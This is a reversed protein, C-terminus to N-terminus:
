SRRRARRMRCAPGFDCFSPCDRDPLPAIMGSKMGDAAGRAVQLTSRFLEAEQDADLKRCGDVAEGLLDHFEDVVVGSRKCQALSLYCGGIIRAEPRSAALASLYLPLQVAESTGIASAKAISNSKYDTVFWTEGPGVDVRDIRGKIKLGGIDVGDRDGVNMETYRTVMRGGEGSEKALFVAIQKKISWAAIRKEAATGPCQHGDILRDITEAAIANAEAVLDPKLPLRGRRGMERYVTKLAEHMLVGQTRADFSAEAEKVNVCSRLFWTFPCSLYSELQSPSFYRRSALDALVKPDTLPKPSGVWPRGPSRQQGSTQGLSSCARLYHRETPATEAVFVQDALTRRRHLAGEPALLERAHTFFHSQTAEAGGDEADRSSLYLIQWARSVANVFLGAEADAEVPFVVGSGLANIRAKQAETLLLATDTRAPFEGEVLGLIFVVDFRRARVRHLSLIQVRDQGEAPGGPVAIDGLVPLLASADLGGNDGGASMQSATALASLLAKLARVDAETDAHASSVDGLGSRLMELALQRVALVDLGAGQLGPGGLSPQVAQRLLGLCNASQPDLLGALVQAGRAFGQRYEAEAQSVVAADVGSYPSRLYALLADADDEAWGRIGSLLAHGFGSELLRRGGDIRYPINCSDFVQCLLRRWGQVHRVVVAIRGPPFGARMLEAIEQAAMEAENRQGSALMFRVGPASVGDGESFPREPVCASAMFNRELFAVAQSSYAQQQTPLEVVEKAVTQWREVEPAGVLSVARSREHALTLVVPVRHAMAEILKIQGPTFSTFGYLAVPRGWSEVLALAARVGAPRDVLGLIERLSRYRAAITAVDVALGTAAHDAAGWDHLLCDIEADGYGSEGLRTLLAGMAHLTGPFQLMPGLAAFESEDLIRRLLLDRQFDSVYRPQRGLLAAVLGDFTMASSPGVLSGCRRLMELTLEQADPTTPAVVVPDLHLRERWWQLVYGMKGSNAPGLVLRLGPQGLDLEFQGAASPTKNTTTKMLGVM